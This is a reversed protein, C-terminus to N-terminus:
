NPGARRSGMTVRREIPRPVSPSAETPRQIAGTRARTPRTTTANTVNLRSFPWIGNTGRDTDPLPLPLPVPSPRGVTVGAGEFTITTGGSIMVNLPEITYAFAPLM